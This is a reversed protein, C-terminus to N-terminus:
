SNADRKGNGFIPETSIWYTSGLELVPKGNALVIKMTQKFQTIRDNTANENITENLLIEFIQDELSHHYKRKGLYNTQGIKLVIVLVKPSIKMALLLKEREMGFVFGESKLLDKKSPQPINWEKYWRKAMGSKLLWDILDDSVHELGYRTNVIFDRISWSFNEKNEDLFLIINRFTEFDNKIKFEDLFKLDNRLEFLHRRMGRKESIGFQKTLHGILDLEEHDDALYKLIEIKVQNTKLKNGRGRSM